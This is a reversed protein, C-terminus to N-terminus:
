IIRVIGNFLGIELQDGGGLPHQIDGGGVIRHFFGHLLGQADGGVRPHIYPQQDGANRVVVLEGIHNRLGIPSLQQAVADFDVFVGGTKKVGFADQCVPLCRQDAASIHVVARELEVVFAAYQQIMHRYYFFQQFVQVVDHRGKCWPPSSGGPSRESSTRRERGAPLWKAKLYRPIFRWKGFM